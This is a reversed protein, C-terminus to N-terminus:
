RGLRRALLEGVVQTVLAKLATDTEDAWGGNAPSGVEGLAVYVLHAEDTTIVGEAHARAQVQQFTFHEEFTLALTEDLAARKEDELADVKERMLALPRDFRTPTLTGLM